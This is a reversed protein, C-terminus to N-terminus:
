SAVGRARLAAQVAAVFCCQRCCCLVKHVSEWQQDHLGFPMNQLIGILEQEGTQPLLLPPVLLLSRLQERAAARRQFDAQSVAPKVCDWLVERSVEIKENM